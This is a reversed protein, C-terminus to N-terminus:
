YHNGDDIIYYKALNVTKLMRLVFSCAKLIVHTSTKIQINHKHLAKKDFNSNFKFYKKPDDKTVDFFISM